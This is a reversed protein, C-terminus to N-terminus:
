KTEVQAAPLKVLEAIHAIEVRSFPEIIRTLNQELLNDYLAALHGRIIADNGLETRFGLDNSNHLTFGNDKITPGGERYNTLAQEFELLSRNQYATAVARLAEVDRGQYRLAIKGSVIAHVDEAQSVLWHITLRQFVEVGM